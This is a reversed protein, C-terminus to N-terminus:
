SLDIQTGRYFIKMSAAALERPMNPDIKIKGGSARVGMFGRMVTYISGAMIGTHIGEPTTGGQTDNIDSKLVAMFWEWSEKPRKLTHAIYGHVVKSLTSGHSTRQIYYDYNERLMDRSFKYGMGDFLNKLEDFPMVYFAMLVDAQKAVKYNNPSKGEAKLIRDMRHVNGYKKRYADWDLEKLGFYGDFQSIIGDKNIIINMRRTIDEWKDLEKKDLGLKKLLKEAKPGPLIGIVQKAKLLTWAIFLNTYANDKLGPTAAGPLKEHFEDPGMLGETHYRKDTRNYKVLSAGFRAISLIVEAGYRTLFDLDNTRDWYHWVNYAVAFSVHRQNRSYDPGWKGSMPNLHMSQTEEEGTSATQWPYMAGKYGNEKAYARAIDLRRYRYMLLARSIESCHFDFFPMIFLSDWFVHGRYAEGHLGRAPMGADIKTNHMSATQLLHFAHLRLARQVFPDGDIKIDFINWLMDWARRHTKLLANFNQATRAASVAERQPDDVGQDSSTYIGVIKEIEYRQKKNVYIAFEQAIARKGNRLIRTRPKIEKNQNFVRVRAAESVQVKSQVTKMSLYVGNQDFSGMDMSRLHRSNLKKYRPVGTNQVTGDLASRVVIWGEYNEPTIICKVAGIHPSAMHVIRQTEIDTIQGDHDLFRMKRVLMGKKMDLEEHYSFTRSPDIWDGKGISFALPLWNPCNVLDENYITKGSINTPIKDYLGAIYTGPYYIRSASVSCPAGRTGFYGNALTCLAERLGEQAPNFQDYTLLWTSKGGTNDKKLRRSSRKM